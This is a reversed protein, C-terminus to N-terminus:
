SCGDLLGVLPALMTKLCHGFYTEAVCLFIPGFFIPWFFNPWFFDALFFRSSIFQCNNKRGGEFIINQVYLFKLGMLITPLFIKEVGWFIEFWYLNTLRIFHELLFTTGFLIQPVLISKLLWM